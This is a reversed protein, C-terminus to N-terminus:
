DRYMRDDAVLVLLRDVAEKVSRIAIYKSFHLGPESERSMAEVVLAIYNLDERILVELAEKTDM